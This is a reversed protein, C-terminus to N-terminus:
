ILLHRDFIRGRFILPFEKWAEGWRCIAELEAGVSTISVAETVRLQYLRDHAKVWVQHLEVAPDLQGFPAENADAVSPRFQTMALRTLWIPLQLLTMAGVM